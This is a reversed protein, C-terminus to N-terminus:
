ILLSLEKKTDSRAIAYLEHGGELRIRKKHLQCAAAWTPSVDPYAGPKVIWFREYLGCVWGVDETPLDSFMLLVDWAFSWHIEDGNRSYESAVDNPYRNAVSYDFDATEPPNEM